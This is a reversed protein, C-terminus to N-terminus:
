DTVEGGTRKAEEWHTEMADRVDPGLALGQDQLRNEIFRFRQEFKRNADRLAQEADVKLHRALNVCSFLLDGVEEHLKELGQERSMAETCEDLEERIKHIVPRAHEWDFGVRAARRQIKEARVLAPLGKTVGNMLSGHEGGQKESREAHKQQEWAARLADDDDHTVDAFVHPHRRIMKECIGGTVDAFDFDGQEAAIQAHFVVQFLLDGLEDRIDDSDDREIADVVEYAEELTYPAVTRFTQKVDWPCGSQPDRLRRMIELLSEIASTSM